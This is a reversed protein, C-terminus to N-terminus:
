ILLPPTSGYLKSRESYLLRFHKLYVRWIEKDFVFLFIPSHLYHYIKNALWDIKVFNMRTRESTLFTNGIDTM